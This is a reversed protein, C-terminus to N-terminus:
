ILQWNDQVRKKEEATPKHTRVEYIYGAGFRVDYQEDEFEWIAHFVPISYVISQHQKSPTGLSETLTKIKEEYRAQANSQDLHIVFTKYLRGQYFYFEVKKGPTSRDIYVVPDIEMFETFHNGQPNQPDVKVANYHEMLTQASAEWQLDGEGLPLTAFSSTILLLIFAAPM